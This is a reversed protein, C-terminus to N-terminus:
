MRIRTGCTVGRGNCVGCRDLNGEPCCLGGADLIGAQCCVNTADIQASSGDCDGCGDLVGSTCCTGEADRVGSACCAGLADLVAGTPCSPPLACESGHFGASCLCTQNRCSGHGSCAPTGGCPECSGDICGQVAAPPLGLNQCRASDVAGLVSSWCVVQREMSGEGCAASCQSWDGVRWSMKECSGLTCAESMTPKPTTTCQQDSVIETSGLVCSVNRHRLGDGCRESCWSWDDARWHSTNCPNTNCRQLSAPKSSAPCSRPSAVAGSPRAVCLVTRVRIGTGCSASCAEWEGSVVWQFTPCSAM